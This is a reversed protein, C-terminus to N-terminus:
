EDTHEWTKYTDVLFDKMDQAAKRLEAFKEGAEVHIFHDSLPLQHYGIFEIDYILKDMADLCRGRHAQQNALSELKLSRVTEPDILQKKRNHESDNM